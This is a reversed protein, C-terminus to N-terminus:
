VELRVSWPIRGTYRRRVPEVFERLFGTVQEPALGVFAAPDLVKAVDVKAFAPDAVLREILDNGQGDQKVRAAAAQAHRRIREHSDQRDAGTSVAAVLIEEAAMFPLEARLHADIVKPYVVLGRSVHTVIRLVAETALLSEPVTLRKNASDDLTREFWQEAATQLASPVLSIVFRALGTARECLMPNRKYPMASSGIQSEEFPEEIEKLHSLLRIDNAFKHAGAAITGLTALIRADVNRSYTQGTVPEVQDFAFEAAVEKELAAVRASNGGLLSLFSAQTGTAGKIGRFRLTAIRSEIESLDRIFEYCWLSGRKGVTTVQAPQFHTYGLTPLHKHTDAFTALADIANALWGAIRQMADRLLILDANDVVDASTAGLHLIGRASPAADGWAHVHAMVDHRTKAEHRAANEFDIAELTRELEAIQGESIAVGARRQAKALALWIRRWTLIRNREGFLESMERSAYRSVLPSRYLDFDTM